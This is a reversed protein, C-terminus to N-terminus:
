AKTMRSKRDERPHAGGDAVTTRRPFSRSGNRPIHRGMLKKHLGDSLFYADGKYIWDLSVGFEDSLRLAAEVTILRAGTEYQNWRPAKIEARKCFESQSPGFAERLTTLRRAM